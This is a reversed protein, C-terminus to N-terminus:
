CALGGKDSTDASQTQLSPSLYELLSDFNLLIKRGIKVSPITGENVLRRLACLKLATDPDSDLIEKYAKGILRM